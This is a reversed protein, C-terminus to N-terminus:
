DNEAVGPGALLLPGHVGFRRGEPQPRQGEGGVPLGERDAPGGVGVDPHFVAVLRLALKADVRHTASPVFPPAADHTTVTLVQRGYGAEGEDGQGPAEPGARRRPLDAQGAPALELPDIELAVDHAHEAPGAAVGGGALARELALAADPQLQEAMLGALVVMRDGAHPHARAVAR